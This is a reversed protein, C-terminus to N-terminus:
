IVSEEVQLATMKDRHQTIPQRCRIMVGPGWKERSIVVYPELEFLNGTRDTPSYLKM